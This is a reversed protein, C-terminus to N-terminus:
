HLCITHRYILCSGLTYHVSLISYINGERSSDCALGPLLELPNSVTVVVRHSTDVVNVGANSRKSGRDSAGSVVKHQRHRKISEPLVLHVFSGINQFLARPILM